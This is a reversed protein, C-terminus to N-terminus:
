HIVYNMIEYLKITTDLKSLIDKISGLIKVLYNKIPPKVANIWQITSLYYEFKENPVIDEVKFPIIALGHNIALTLERGVHDSINSHNSFILLMVHASKIAKVISGEWGTGPKANRHDLWCKINHEELYNCLIESINDDKSSHSIFVDNMM